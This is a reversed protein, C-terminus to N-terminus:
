TGAAAVSLWVLPLEAGIRPPDSLFHLMRAVASIGLRDGVSGYFGYRDILQLVM